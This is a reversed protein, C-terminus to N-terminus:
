YRSYNWVVTQFSVTINERFKRKPCKNADVTEEKHIQTLFRRNGHSLLPILNGNLLRM